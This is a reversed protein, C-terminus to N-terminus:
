LHKRDIYDDENEETRRPM